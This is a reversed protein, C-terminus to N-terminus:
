KRLSLGRHYFDYKLPWRVSTMTVLTFLDTHNERGYANVDDPEYDVSAVEKEEENAFKQLWKIINGNIM